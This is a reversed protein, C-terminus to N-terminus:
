RWWEQAQRARHAFTHEAHSRARGAARIAEGWAPDAVVRRGLEVLHEADDFVLVETGVDYFEAVDARDVLQLGGMGPVEFTRMAHGAQLGHINIAGAAASQVAYAEKLPIDREAPVSPRALEWTRIRDWPHHSWQRGYARVPVGATRLATLLDVRNDYRSGVFVLEASRQGSPTALTPDFGNPLYHADVGQECLLTAESAAYSLVPGIKRLFPMSYSHRHLDDYLWLMLPVHLDTVESWFEEGLSDGKIVLVRQPRVARLAEIARATDWQQRAAARDLGLKQPLELLAKNRLKMPVTAYDDYCHVTVDFGQEAWARAISRHYGHFSPSVLFLREVPGSSAGRPAPVTYTM